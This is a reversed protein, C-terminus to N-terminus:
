KLPKGSKFMHGGEELALTKMAYSGMPLAQPPPTLPAPGGFLEELQAHENDCIQNSDLAHKKAQQEAPPPASPPLSPLKGTKQTPAPTKGINNIEM